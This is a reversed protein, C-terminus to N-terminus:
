SHLCHSGSLAFVSASNDILSNKHSGAIVGLPLAILIAVLMAALALKITAPYREMILDVVPQETRFSTGLDGADAGVM